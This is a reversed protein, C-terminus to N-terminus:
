KKLVIEVRKNRKVSKLSYSESGLNEKAWNNASETNSFTKPRNNRGKPNLIKNGDLNSRIRHRRKVRTHVKAM